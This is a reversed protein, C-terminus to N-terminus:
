EDSGGQQVGGRAVCRALAYFGAAIGVVLLEWRYRSPMGGGLSASLDTMYSLLILWAGGSGIAWERWNPRFTGGLNLHKLIAVSGILLGLSVLLPSLVPGIWPLPILFLVDSKFLSEPWGLMVKLWVYYFIDWLAFAFCFIAFREALRRGALWSVTFLMVLTAVERGVEVILHERIIPPLPFGFGDPYYIQRLYVVVASEAYAMAVAFLAIVALALPRGGPPTGRLDPLKESEAM